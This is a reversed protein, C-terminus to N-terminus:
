SQMLVVDDYLKDILETLKEEALSAVGNLEQRIAYATELVEAKVISSASQGLGVLTSIFDEVKSFDKEIEAKVLNIFTNDLLDLQEKEVLTLSRIFQAPQAIIREFLGKSTKPADADPVRPEEPLLLGVVRGLFVATDRTFSIVLNVANQIEITVKNEPIKM